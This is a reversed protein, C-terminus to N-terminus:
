NFQPVLILELYKKQDTGKESDTFLKKPFNFIFLDVMRILGHLLSTGRFIRQAYRSVDLFIWQQINALSGFKCFATSIRISNGQFGSPNKIDKYINISM